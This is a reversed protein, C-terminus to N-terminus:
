LPYLGDLVTMPVEASSAAVILEAENDPDPNHERHPLGPPVFVYDGPSTEVRVERDGDHFIFAPHGSRVYVAIETDGHHHPASLVGPAIHTEGMWIRGSGLSGKGVAEFGWMDRTNDPQIGAARVHRMGTAM